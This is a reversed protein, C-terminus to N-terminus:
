ALLSWRMFRHFDCCDFFTRSLISRLNAGEGEASRCLFGCDGAV